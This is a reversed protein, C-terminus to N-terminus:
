WVVGLERSINGWKCGIWTRSSGAFRLGMFVEGEAWFSGSDGPITKFTDTQMGIVVDEFRCKGRRYGVTVYGDLDIYTTGVSYGSTRGYAWLDEPDPNLVPDSARTLAMGNPAERKFEMGEKISSCSVDVKNVDIGNFFRYKSHVFERYQCAFTEFKLDVGRMFEGTIDDPQSGGDLISPQVARDGPRADNELGFCHQNSLQIYKRSTYDKVIAGLSCAGTSRANMTSIGMLLPRYKLRPNPNDLPVEDLAKLEGIEYIDIEYKKGDIEVTEPVLDKAELKDEKEKKSVYVRVVETDELLKGKSERQKIELSGGLVNKKSKLENLKDKIGIM